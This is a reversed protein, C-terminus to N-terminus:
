RLWDEGGTRFRARLSGTTDGLLDARYQDYTIRGNTDWWEKLEDSAHKRARDAPGVFLSHPDVGAARAAPTLLQGRTADEAAIYRRYVEDRFAHRALEDLGAGTYGQSRLDAIARDRRQREVSRGFVEAIAEEESAGGNILVDLQAWRQEDREAKRAAAAERREMEAVIADLRDYDEHETARTLRADLEEATAKRLPPLSNEAHERALQQEAGAPLGVTPAPRAPAPPAATRRPTPTTTARRPATGDVPRERDGRRLQGTAATHQNIAASNAKLRARLKRATDTDGFQQAAALRRKLERSRRELARLQQQDEYGEPNQEAPRHVDTLGIVVPDARHTCNPHWLGAARADAITATVRRGDVDTGVSRGTISLVEREWPRCLSCERPSDSILVVDVGEVTLEALGGEVAAQQAATRGAMRAYTDLHWRRGARDEFRDHGAALLRDVTQAIAERRTITGTAMLAETQAVALQYLDVQRRLVPLHTGGLQSVLWELLQQVLGPRTGLAVPLDRSAVVQRGLTYAEDLARAALEPVTVDLRALIARLEDRVSLVQRAKVEAWGDQEIGQALRRAVTALMREAAADWTDLLQKLVDAAATPDVGRAM